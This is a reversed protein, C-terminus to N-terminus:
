NAEHRKELLTPNANNTVEPRASFPRPKSSAKVIQTGGTKAGPGGKGRSGEGGDLVVAANEKNKKSGTQEKIMCIFELGLDKLRENKRKEKEKKNEKTAKAKALEGKLQKVKM